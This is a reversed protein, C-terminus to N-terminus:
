RIGCEIRIHWACDASAPWLHFRWQEPAIPNRLNHPGPVQGPIFINAQSLLTLDQKGDANFDGVWCEALSGPQEARNQANALNFTGDGNGPLVTISSPTLFNGSVADDVALDLKGDGNFDSLLTQALMTGYPTFSVTFGGQGNGLGVFYGSPTSGGTCTQTNGAYSMVFDLNGDGNLDRFAVNGISCAMAAAPLNLPIPAGLTGDPQSLAVSLGNATLLLLDFHGDNNFDPLAPVVGLSGSGIIIAAPIVTSFSFGGKGNSLGINVDPIGNVDFNSYDIALVDSLGDGNVDGVAVVQINNTAETNNPSTPSANNPAVAPQARFRGNGLGHVLSFTGDVGDAVPVDLNGDGDLFGGSGAGTPLVSFSSAVTTVM